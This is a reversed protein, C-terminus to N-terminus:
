AADARGGTRREASTRTTRAPSGRVRIASRVRAAGDPRAHMVVSSWGVRSPRDRESVAQLRRGCAAPFTTIENCECRHVTRADRPIIVRHPVWGLFVGKRHPYPRPRQGEPLDEAGRPVVRVDARPEEREGALPM